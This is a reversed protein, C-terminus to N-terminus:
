EINTDNYKIRFEKVQYYLFVGTILASISDSVPAALWVGDLGWFHPLILLSPILVICQRTLSLFISKKVMGLCQFFNTAVAQFGVCFFASLYIRLGRSAVAIMEEDSTFIRVLVEPIFIACLSGLSTVITAAYITYKLVGLVRDYQKAGYNYGAIPQMGQNLGIVFMILLMLLSNNIGYAGIAIDGGYKKLSVTMFIAVLSAALQMLFPSMGISIISFVIAKDLCIYKKRFRLFSNKSMFHSMVWVMSVTMAICSAWAVGAIGLHFVFIFIPVLIINLIAGILMTYMAKYPYGSARMMSNFNYALATLVTAPIMILLFEKAYPITNESGGFAYLLPELFYLSLSISLFSFILTLLLSCGLVQEALEKNKQGLSISIRASSGAGILMGVSQLAMIIPMTLALGSIAMTGVGQGIFIRDVVSYLATVMTGVIAPLAYKWLLDGIPATELAATAKNETM